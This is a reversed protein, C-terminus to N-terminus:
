HVGAQPSARPTALAPPPPSDMRRRLREERRLLRPLLFRRAMKMHRLAAHPDVLHTAPLPVGSEKMVLGIPLVMKEQLRILSAVMDAAPTLLPGFGYRAQGAGIVYLNKVTPLVCGAYLLALSGQVPVLGEPLFPFSVHYGTAAVVVDYEQRVGDVFEVTNGEFRAINSRPKIRGHQIYHLLESNLTPHTEFIRHNPSPLGYSQYSGFVVRLLARLVIRQLWVPAWFPVVEVLPRGLLTKPLFWYGRRLSIDTSKGVRAAESAIDCASNGGGIVLVRKGRLQEPDKYQKSHIYDGTFKGPWSPWRCDWHHGNCVLVGRYIRRDGGELEVEWRHDALPHAFVVRTKFQIRGLLGFHRAYDRLYDVMQRASPFDPYDAPMPYDAYETTKRSSIIHASPYVGHLWNGGVDSDAEFQEYPIGTKLLARAMSLGVPGAGIICYLSSRDEM